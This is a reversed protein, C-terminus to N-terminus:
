RPDIGMRRTAVTNECRLIGDRIQNVDCRLMRLFDSFPITQM